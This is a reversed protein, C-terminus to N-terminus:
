RSSSESSLASYPACSRYESPYLGVHTKFVRSFYFQDEYGVLEGIKRVDLEPRSLLLQKAENMRLRIIHKLPTEGAHRKFAKGLYDATVGLQEAIEALRIDRRFNERIFLELAKATEEQSSLLGGSSLDRLAADAASARADLKIRVSALAEALAADAVPKLLFDKVEYKIAERAYEFDGYGSVIIAVTGPYAFFANKILELGDMAPMKIDTVLLDPGLDEMVQLASVGDMAEAAVEFGPGLEEIKRRLGKRAWQEDEVLLVKYPGTPRDGM